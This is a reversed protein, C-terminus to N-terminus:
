FIVRTAFFYLSLLGVVTYTFYFIYLVYNLFSGFLKLDKNQEEKSLQKNNAFEWINVMTSKYSQWRKM